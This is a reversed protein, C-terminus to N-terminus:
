AVEYIATFGISDAVGFVFPVGPSVLAMAAYAGSTTAVAVFLFGSGYSVDGAVTQIGSNVCRAVGLPLFGGTGNPAPTIPPTVGFNGVVASSPGLTFVFEAICTNGIETYRANISGNGLTAGTLTAPWDRWNGVGPIVFPSCLSM